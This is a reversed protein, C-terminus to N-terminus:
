RSANAAQPEAVGWRRVIPWPRVDCDLAHLWRGVEHNSNSLLLYPSPHPVFTMDLAANEVRASAQATFLADLEDRLREVSAREVRIVHSGETQVVLSERVRAPDMPVDIVRRGIAARSPVFLARMASLVNRRYLAYHGYEGYAYRVVAGDRPVVLSTSRGHELLLVNVPDDVDRPPTITATCGAALALLMGLLVPLRLDPNTPMPDM